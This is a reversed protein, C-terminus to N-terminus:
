TNKDQIELFNKQLRESNKAIKRDYLYCFKAIIKNLLM